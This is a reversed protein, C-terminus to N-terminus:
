SASTELNESSVGIQDLAKIYQLASDESFNASSLSTTMRTLEDASVGSQISLKDITSTTGALSESLGELKSGINSIKDAIVTLSAIDMIPTSSTEEETEQIDFLKQTIGELESTDADPRIVRNGTEEELETMQQLKTILEDLASADANTKLQLQYEAM